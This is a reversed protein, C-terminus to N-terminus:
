EKTDLICLATRNDDAVVISYIGQFSPWNEIVEFAIDRDTLVHKKLYRPDFFDRFRVDGHGSHMRSMFLKSEGLLIDETPEGVVVALVSKIRTMFMAEAGRRGLSRARCTGRQPAVSKLRIRRM